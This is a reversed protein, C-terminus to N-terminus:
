SQTLKSLACEIRQLVRAKGIITAIEFPSPSAKLGSLSVRLPWLIYGNQKGAAQIREKLSSEISANTWEHESLSVLCEKAFRLSDRLDEMTMQKWQLLATDYNLQDEFYFAANTAIESIKKIRTREIEVIQKLLQLTIKLGTKSTYEGTDSELIYGVTIFQPIALQTIHSIDAHRIYHGNFWDLKQLDFISGSKNVHSLDFISELEALTYLERDGGPNWGLLAIFNILAEPLYGDQRYEDVATKHERKSMKKRNSDLILPIHGFEPTPLRLAQSLQIQKPTNSIHEEGRFVHTIEMLADDIVVAFNYLPADFDKAIIFDDMLATDFTVAGRILDKVIITQPELLFRLTYEKGSREYESRKADSLKRCKGSYRPPMKALAQEQKEHELDEKTCYCKYLRGQDSLKRLYDAYIHGRESQRYPGYQGGIDPGEDWSLALWKLSQIISEEYFHKSREKDTDEIRLVFSGKQKRAFLYNTLATRALGIHAHGTPSPAIRTRIM